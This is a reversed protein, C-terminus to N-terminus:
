ILILVFARCYNQLEGEVFATVFNCSQYGHCYEMVVYCREKGNVASLPRRQKYRSSVLACLLRRGFNVVLLCWFLLVIELYCHTHREHMAMFM